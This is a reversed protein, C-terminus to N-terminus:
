GAQDIGERAIFNAASAQEALRKTLGKAEALPYGRVEVSITFEPAHDPGSRAVERYLPTPLGRAQAWEQLATKPDRLPRDPSLM